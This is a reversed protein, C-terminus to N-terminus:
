IIINAGDANISRQTAELVRLVRLGAEGDTLAHRKHAICNAFERVMVSLADSDDVRTAYMDASQNSVLLNNRKEDEGKKVIIGKDYIKKDSLIDGIDVTARVGPYPKTAKNLRKTDNDCAGILETEPCLTESWIQDGTDVVM